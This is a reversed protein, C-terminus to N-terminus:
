YRYNERDSFRTMMICMYIYYYYYVYPESTNSNYAYM